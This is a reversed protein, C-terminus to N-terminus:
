NKLNPINTRIKEIIGLSIIKKDTANKFTSESINLIQLIRKRNGQRERSFNRLINVERETLM